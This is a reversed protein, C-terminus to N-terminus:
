LGRERCVCICSHTPAKGLGQTRSEGGFMWGRTVLTRKALSKPLLSILSNINPSSAAPFVLADGWNEQRNVRELSVGDAIKYLSLNFWDTVVIGVPADAKFRVFFKVKGELKQVTPKLTSVTVYLFTLNLTHSTPPCSM